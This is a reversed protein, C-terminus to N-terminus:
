GGAPNLEVVNKSEVWGRGIILTFTSLATSVGTSSRDSCCEVGAASASLPAFRGTSLQIDETPRFNKKKRDVYNSFSSLSQMKHELQASVFLTSQHLRSFQTRSAGVRQATPEIRDIVLADLSPLRYIPVSGSCADRHSVIHYYM